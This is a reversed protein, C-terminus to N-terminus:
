AQRNYRAAVAAVTDVLHDCLSLFSFFFV